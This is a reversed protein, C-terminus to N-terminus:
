RSYAALFLKDWCQIYCLLETLREPLLLLLELDEQVREQSIFCGSSKVGLAETRGLSHTLKVGGDPASYHARWTPPPHAPPCFAM